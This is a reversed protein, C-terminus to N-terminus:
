SYLSVSISIGVPIGAVVLAFGKKFAEFQASVSGDLLYDLYLRVYQERNENTM